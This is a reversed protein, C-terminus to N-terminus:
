FLLRVTMKRGRMKNAALWAGGDASNAPVSLRILTVSTSFLVAFLIGAIAAARPTRLVRRTLTIQENAM